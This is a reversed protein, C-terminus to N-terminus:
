NTKTPYTWDLIQDSFLHQAFIKIKKKMIELGIAM